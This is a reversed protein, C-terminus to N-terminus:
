DVWGHTPMKIAREPGSTGAAYGEPQRDADLWGKSIRDIWEWAAEVEDRRVFLTTQGQLADLILREYAIRRRHDKFADTLSLNLTVPELLMGDLGPQKANLMLEVTEQPQLRIRMQNAKAIKATGRNPRFIDHPLEKFQVIIETRREPMRKGTRLYFPVGAWRWNDIDARIAVFTETSSHSGGAEEQYGKVAEGKITGATYQGPVTRDRVMAETMPRLSRLVKIKENRVSQPDFAAPPEMALLSVLQLMHNQVMDRLAGSTDYYSWRGEVGVTEAITIQVNDISANNWLPEFLSNGFRLALLNQVTEKGLYHDVRFVRREDFAAGVASNIVMSSALDRGIPKELVVGKAGEVLGAHALGACITGFLSPSVALFYLAGFSAEGLEAALAEFQEPKSVDVEAYSVQALFSALLDDRVRGEPQHQALSKAIFAHLDADTLKSRATGIIRLEKPLKGEDHLNYLSAWIMRAALDGTAGFLVFASAAKETKTM